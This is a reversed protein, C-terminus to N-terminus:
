STTQVVVAGKNNLQSVRWAFFLALIVIVILLAILIGNGLGFDSNTVSLRTKVDDLLTGQPGLDVSETGNNNFGQLYIKKIGLSKLYRKEEESFGPFTHLNTYPVYIYAIEKEDGAMRLDFTFKGNEYTGMVVQYRCFEWNPENPPLGGACIASCSPNKRGNETDHHCGAFYAGVTGPIIPKCDSFHDMVCKHLIPYSNSKYLLNIYYLIANYHAESDKSLKSIPVHSVKRLESLRHNIEKLDIKLANGNGKFVITNNDTYENAIETEKSYNYPNFRDM